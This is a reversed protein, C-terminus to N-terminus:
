NKKYTLMHQGYTGVVVSVSGVKYLVLPIGHDSAEKRLKDAGARSSDENFGVITEDNHPALKLKSYLDKIALQIVHAMCPLHEPLAIGEQLLLPSSPANDEESPVVFISPQIVGQVDSDFMQM